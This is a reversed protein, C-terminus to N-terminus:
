IFSGDKLRYYKKKLAYKDMINKLEKTDIDMKSLDISLLDNEVKVGISAMKPTRIQKAKFNDTVMVEFNKMYYNIDQTLFRYIDDDNPLIFRKNKVDLMFGTKRLMNLSKTEKIKNRVLSKSVNEEIPNFENNDYCFRVDAVLYDSKDFDLYVKVVLEKPRYKEIEKEPINQM